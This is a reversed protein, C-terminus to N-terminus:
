RNGRHIIYYLITAYLIILIVWIAIGCWFGIKVWKGAEKSKQEALAYNGVAYASSVSCANIIGVIGFPICCFITILVSQLLWTKPCINNHEEM